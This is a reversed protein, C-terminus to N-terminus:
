WDGNEKSGVRMNNVAEILSTELLSIMNIPFITDFRGLMKLSQAFIEKTLRVKGLSVQEPM